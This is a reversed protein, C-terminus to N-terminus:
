PLFSLAPCSCKTRFGGVADVDITVHFDEKGRVSAECGDHRYSEFTVKNARHFAEGRKFSVAGCMDKIIKRNLKIDM